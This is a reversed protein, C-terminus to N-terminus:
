ARRLESHNKDLALIRRGPTQWTEPTCYLSPLVVTPPHVSLYRNWHSEDHNAAVIGKQEDQSIRADMEAMAALWLDTRGGQFGGCCYQFRNRWGVFAASEPRNEHPLDIASKGVCEPHQVAVLDAFIEDCVPAVFRMDVDCYFTHTRERLSEAAPLMMRYRHLTPGPWREHAIHHWVVDAAPEGPHDCFIHFRPSHDVVFFDRASKLLPAIFPIYHRTAIICLNATYV